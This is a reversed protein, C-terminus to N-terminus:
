TPTNPWVLRPLEEILEEPTPATRLGSLVKDLEVYCYMWVEDRWEVAAQAEGAFKLRTSTAYTCLSNINDYNREQARSDLYGQVTSTLQSKLSERQEVALVEASKVNMSGM